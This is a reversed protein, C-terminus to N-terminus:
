QNAVGAVKAVDAIAVGAIKGIGALPVTSVSKISSTTGEYLYWEQIETYSGGGNTATIMLRFFQYAVAVVDCTFTRTENISWGSEGTVTDLIDWAGGNSSGQFTWSNPARLPSDVATPGSKIAYSGAIKTDPSGSATAYLYLESIQTYSPNGDNATIVIRFYRYATTTTDCVFSRIENAGWATEGSVTDVTTWGSDDNSGQITWDRPSRNTDTSPIKLQYAVLTHSVGTGFDLKVWESGSNNGIWYSDSFAQWGSYGGIPASSQSVVFPTPANASTMYHPAVDKAGNVADINLQVFEIGGYDGIWYGAGGDLVKWIENGGVHTHASSIVFPSHSTASTLDHPAFDPEAGQLLFAALCIFASKLATRM